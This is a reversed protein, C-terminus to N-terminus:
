RLYKTKWEKIESLVTNMQLDEHIRHNNIYWPANLVSRLAKSQFRQLIGINSNSATGYLQTGYTWIPKLVAEYLLESEISLTSRGLLWHMQKAKLNLQKRKTKIHKAWKLRKDLHMGLYKV